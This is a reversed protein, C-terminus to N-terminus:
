FSIPPMFPIVNGKISNTFGANGWSDTSFFKIELAGFKDAYYASNADSYLVTFPGTSWRDSGAPTLSGSSFSTYSVNNVYIDAYTSELVPFESFVMKFRIAELYRLAFTSTDSLTVVTGGRLIKEYVSATGTPASSDVASTVLSTNIVAQSSSASYFNNTLSLNNNASWIYARGWGGAGGSGGNGGRTWESTVMPSTVGGAGGRIDIKGDTSATISGSVIEIAGGSGGGGSGASVENDMYSGWMSTTGSGGNGGRVSLVGNITSEWAFIKVFGGGAGGGGASTSQGFAGAGGGAAGYSGAYPGGTSYDNKLMDASSSSLYNYTSGGVGYGPTGFSNGGSGATGYGGGGGGGGYSIEGGTGGTAGSSITYGGSVNVTSGTDIIFYKCYIIIGSALTLTSSSTVRLTQYYYVSTGNLGGTLSLTTATQVTLNVSSQFMKRILATSSAADTGFTYVTTSTVSPSAPDAVYPISNFIFYTPNIPDFFGIYSSKTGIDLRIAGSGGAGGPLGSNGDWNGDQSGGGGGAGGTAYFNGYGVLQDGIFWISGGGGGGGGGAGNGRANQSNAGTGGNGGRVDVVGNNEFIKAIIKVAGGGAGGAGGSWPGSPGFFGPGSGSQGQAGASGTGTAAPITSTYDTITGTLYSENASGGSGAYAGGGSYNSATGGASYGGGGGGGAGGYTPSNGTTGTNAGTGAASSITGNNILKTNVRFNSTRPIYLIYGYNVTVNRYYANGTSAITFPSNSADVVLDTTSTGYDVVTGNFTLTSM